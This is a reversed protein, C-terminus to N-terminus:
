NGLILPERMAGRRMNGDELAIFISTIVMLFDSQGLCYNPLSKLLCFKRYSM